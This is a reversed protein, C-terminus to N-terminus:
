VSRSPTGPAGLDAEGEDKTGPVAAPDQQLQHHTDGALFCVDTVLFHTFSLM